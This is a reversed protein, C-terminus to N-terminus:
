IVQRICWYTAEFKATWFVRTLTAEVQDEGPRREPKLRPSGMAFKGPPCWCVRVGDVTKEEGARAGDVGDPVAPFGAVSLLMVALGTKTM